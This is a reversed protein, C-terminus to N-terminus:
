FYHIQSFNLVMLIWNDWYRDIEHPIFCRKFFISSINLLVLYTIKKSPWLKFDTHVTYNENFVTSKFNSLHLKHGETPTSGGPAESETGAPGPTPEGQLRDEVELQRSSLCLLGAKQERLRCDQHRLANIQLLLEPISWYRSAALIKLYKNCFWITINRHLLLHHTSLEMILYSRTPQQQCTVPWSTTHTNRSQELCYHGTNVGVGRAGACHLSNTM